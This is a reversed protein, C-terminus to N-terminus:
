KTNNATIVSCEDCGTRLTTNCLTSCTNNAKDPGFSQAYSLNGATVYILYPNNWPDMEWNALYPGNWNALGSCAASTNNVLCTTNGSNGVLPWSALDYHYMVAASKIADLDAATKADQADQKSSKFLPVMAGALVALITVVILLELLTFGRKM